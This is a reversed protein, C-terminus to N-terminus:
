FIDKLNKYLKQYIFFKQEYKIHREKRPKFLKIEFKGAPFKEINEIEGISAM